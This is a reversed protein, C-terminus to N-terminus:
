WTHRQLRWFGQASSLHFDIAPLANTPYGRFPGQFSRRKAPWPCSIKETGSSRERLVHLIGDALISPVSEDLSPMSFPGPSPVVTQYRLEGGPWISLVPLDSKVQRLRECAMATEVCVQPAELLSDLLRTVVAIGRHIIRLVSEEDAFFPTHCPLGETLCHAVLNSRVRHDREHELRLPEPREDLWEDSKHHFRSPEISTPFLVIPLALLFRM